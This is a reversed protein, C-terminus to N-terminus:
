DGRQRSSVQQTDVRPFKSRATRLQTKVTGKPLELMQALENVPEPHGARQLLGFLVLLASYYSDDGRPSSPLRKARDRISALPDDLDALEPRNRLERTLQTVAAEARRMVGSTVGRVKVDVPADKAFSISVDRPGEPLAAKGTVGIWRATIEWAGMRTTARAHWTITGIRVSWDSQGDEM